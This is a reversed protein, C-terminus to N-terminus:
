NEKNNNKKECDINDKSNFSRQRKFKENKKNNMPSTIIKNRYSNFRLYINKKNDISNSLKPKNENLFINKETKNKTKYFTTRKNNNKEETNTIINYKRDSFNRSLYNKQINNSKEQKNSLFNKIDVVNKQSLSINYSNTALKFKINNNSSNNDIKKIKERDNMIKYVNNIEEEEKTNLKNNNNNNINNNNNNINNNNNKNNNNNLKNDTNNKNGEFFNYELDLKKEEGDDNDTYNFDLKRTLEKIDKKQVGNFDVLNRRFRVDKIFEILEAFKIKILKYEKKFDLFTDNVIKFQSKLDNIEKEFSEKLNFRFKFTEETQKKLKESNLNLEKAAKINDVRVDQITKNILNLNNEIKEDIENKLNKSYVNNKNEFDKLQLNFTELNQEIKEKYSKLDIETKSKFLNLSGMEKINNNLYERLNKYKCHEGIFAPITLNKEVIKSFKVNVNNIEKENNSLKIEHTTLLDNAKKQFLLLEDVKDMKYKYTYLNESMNDYRKSTEELANLINNLEEEFKEQFDLLSSNIKKNLINYVKLLTPDSIFDINPEKSM